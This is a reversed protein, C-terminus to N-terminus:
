SEIRRSLSSRGIRHMMAQCHGEAERRLVNKGNTCLLQSCMTSRCIEALPANTTLVEMVIGAKEEATWKRGPM